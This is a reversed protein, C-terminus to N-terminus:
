DADERLLHVAFGCFEEQLYVVFMEGNEDYKASKEDFKWGKEELYKKAGAFDATAIGIHGCTGRGGNKMLEIADSSFVSDRGEQVPLGFMQEFLRALGLAKEGDGCNVGFHRVRFHFRQSEEEL